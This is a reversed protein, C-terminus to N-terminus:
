LAALGRGVRILEAFEEPTSSLIHDSGPLAKSLTFHREVIRAGHAIARLANEHGICHCSIGDYLIEPRYKFEKYDSPLSPYKSVCALKRWNVNKALILDSRPDLGMGMSIFVTEFDTLAKALVEPNRKTTRSAIKIADLGKCWELTELDFASALPKIGYTHCWQRFSQWNDKGLKCKQAEPILHREQDNDFLERPNYLQVKAYDAGAIAAQRVLEQLLDMNGNHNIGIEAIFTM